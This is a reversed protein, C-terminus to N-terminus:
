NQMFTWEDKIVPNDNNLILKFKKLAMVYCSNDDTKFVGGLYVHNNWIVM